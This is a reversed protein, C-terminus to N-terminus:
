RALAAGRRATKRRVKEPYVRHIAIAGAEIAEKEISRMDAPKPKAKFTVTLLWLERSM